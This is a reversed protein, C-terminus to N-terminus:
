TLGTLNEFKLCTMDASIAVGFARGIGAYVQVNISWILPSCYVPGCNAPLRKLTTSVIHELIPGEHIM